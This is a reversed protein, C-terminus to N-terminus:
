VQTTDGQSKHEDEVLKPGGALEDVVGNRPRVDNCLQHSRYGIHEYEGQNSSQM